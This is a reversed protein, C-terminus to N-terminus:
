VRDQALIRRNEQEQAIDPRAAPYKSRLTGVLKKSYKFQTPVLGIHLLMETHQLSISYSTFFITTIM